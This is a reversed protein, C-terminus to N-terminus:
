KWLGPLPETKSRNLRPTVQSGPDHAGLRAHCLRSPSMRGGCFNLYVPWGTLARTVRRLQAIERVHDM